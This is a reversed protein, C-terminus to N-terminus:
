HKFFFMGLHTMDLLETPLASLPQGGASVIEAPKFAVGSKAAVAPNFSAGSGMAKGMVDASGFQTPLASAGWAGLGAMLSRGVDGKTTVMSTAGSALGAGVPGGFMGGVIGAITPLADKFSFMEPLGTLPNITMQAQQLGGLGANGMQNIAGVEQPNMHVLMNDGGRGAQQLAMAENVLGGNQMSVPNEEELPFGGMLQMPPAIAEPLPPPAYGPMPMNALPM